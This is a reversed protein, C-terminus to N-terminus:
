LLQHITFSTYHIAYPTHQTTHPAQHIPNAITIYFLCLYFPFSFPQGHQLLLVDHQAAREPDLYVIQQGEAGERLVGLLAMVVFLM